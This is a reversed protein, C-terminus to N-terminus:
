GDKRTMTTTEIFATGAAPTGPRNEAYAGTRPPFALQFLQDDLSHNRSYAPDHVQGWRQRMFMVEKNFRDLKEQTNEHGRTASEHHYMEAFPTWINRYGAARLRLCFDIDNFAVALEPDLGGVADFADRSVVLCAATVASVEQVLRARGMHGPYGRMHGAYAHAAVGHAGIIVGAHQIADNPYYLMAGVAGVDPRCAHGVMEELWNPTIVTIDNNLLCLVSGRAQAAAANNIRSYNFPQDYRIVRVRSETALSKFYELTEREQSQNDVLIIELPVYSTEDLVSRICSKLLDVRDRTPVIISVLPAPAPLRYRVRYNGRLGPIDEVRGTSGTRILHESIARRGAEHAYDKEQPALATSGIIARWHYLVLPVHGIQDAELREICRLALDWDQSGEMGERFGGVERVLDAHYVGLHSICNHSLFLDYNWDAKMYPDFRVGDEDIKDEDSFLMRWRPHRELADAVEMLALPHLEDDHDLLVIWEGQAMAIASNSSASIHGNTERFVVRVRPDSAAYQELVRRVTPSPSADDAICLEWNDYAQALVSDICRRLWQEPTNYVPLVVSLLPQNGQAVLPELLERRQEPRDYISLWDSYGLQVRDRPELAYLGYLAVALGRPGKGLLAGALLGSIRVRERATSAEEFVKKIMQRAAELKGIRRLRIGGMRFQCATVAPDFRLAGVPNTFLAVGRHPGAGGDVFPLFVKHAEPHLVGYDPYFYPWMAPGALQELDIEVEYWGAEIRGSPLKCDFVPDNGVAEWVDGKVHRLHNVPSLSLDM